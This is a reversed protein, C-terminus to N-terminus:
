DGCDDFAIVGGECWWNNGSVDCCGTTAITDFCPAGVELVIDPCTVLEM